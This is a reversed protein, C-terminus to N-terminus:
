GAEGRIGGGMRVTRYKDRSALVARGTKLFTSRDTRRDALSSTQKSFIKQKNPQRDIAIQRDTDGCFSRPM